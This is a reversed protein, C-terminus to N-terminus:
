WVNKVSTTESFRRGEGLQRASTAQGCTGSRLRRLRQGPHFSKDEVGLSFKKGGVKPWATGGDKCAEIGIDGWGWCDGGRGLGRVERLQKVETELVAGYFSDSVGDRYMLLVDPLGGTSSRYQQLLQVAAGKLGLLLEQGKLQEM